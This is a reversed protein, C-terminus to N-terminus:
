ETASSSKNFDKEARRWARFIYPNKPNGTLWVVAQWGVSAGSILNVRSEITYTDSLSSEVYKGGGLITTIPTPLNRSIAQQRTQIVHNITAKRIGPIAALINQSASEADIGANLCDVTVDTALREYVDSDIGRVQQLEEITEFLGDRAGHAADEKEYEADEAGHIRRRHDPDRWDLIAQSLEFAHDHGQAILLGTILRGWGTNIDLKGCEGRVRTRILTDKWELTQEVSGDTITKSSQVNMLMMITHYIGAQALHRAHTETLHNYALHTETRTTAIAGIALASILSALWLVILLAAGREGARMKTM